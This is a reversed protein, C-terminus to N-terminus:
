QIHTESHSRCDHETVFTVKLTSYIPLSLSSITVRKTPAKTLQTANITSHPTIFQYLHSTNFPMHKLSGLPDLSKIAKTPQNALRMHFSLFPRTEGALNNHITVAPQVSMGYVFSCMLGTVRYLVATVLEVLKSHLKQPQTIVQATRIHQPAPRSLPFTEGTGTQGDSDAYNWIRTYSTRLVTGCVTCITCTNLSCM